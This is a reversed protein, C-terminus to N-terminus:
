ALGEQGLSEDAPGEPLLAHIFSVKRAGAPRAARDMTRNLFPEILADVADELTKLEAPTLYLVWDGIGSLSLWEESEGPRRDFWSTIQDLYQQVLVRDLAMRADSGEGKIATQRWNTFMATARWPRERGRGGGAEEVLGWKALQRLHFSCSSPSEGVHEAAQTATMPGETRLLGVLKMRTPHAMARLARPDNLEVRRAPGESDFSM